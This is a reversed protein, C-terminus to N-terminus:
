FFFTSQFEVFNFDVEPEVMLWSPSRPISCTTCDVRGKYIPMVLDSVDQTSFFHCSIICTDYNACHRACRLHCFFSVRKKETLDPGRFTLEKNRVLSHFYFTQSISVEIVNKVRFFRQAPSKNEMCSLNPYFCKRHM